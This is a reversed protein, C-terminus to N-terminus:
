FFACCKVNVFNLQSISNLSIIGSLFNSVWLIATVSQKHLEETSNGNQKLPNILNIVLKDSTLETEEMTIKM